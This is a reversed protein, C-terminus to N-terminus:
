GGLNSSNDRTAGHRAMKEKRKSDTGQAESSDSSQCLKGKTDRDTFSGHCLQMQRTLFRGGDGLIDDYGM